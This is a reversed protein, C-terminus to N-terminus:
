FGSRFRSFARKVHQKPPIQPAAEKDFFQAPEDYATLSSKNELNPPYLGIYPVRFAFRIRDILPRSAPRKQSLRCTQIYICSKHGTLSYHNPDNAIYVDRVRRKSKFGTV